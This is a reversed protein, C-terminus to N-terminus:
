VIIKRVQGDKLSKGQIGNSNFTLVSGPLCVLFNSM